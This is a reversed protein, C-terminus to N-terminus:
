VWWPAENTRFDSDTWETLIVKNENLTVKALTISKPAPGRIVKGQENYQSGHCPCM